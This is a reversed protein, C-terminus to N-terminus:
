RGVGSGVLGGDDGETPAPPTVATPTAEELAPASERASSAPEPATVSGSCAAAALTLAAALLYRTTKM